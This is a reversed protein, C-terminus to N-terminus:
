FTDRVKIQIKDIKLSANAFVSLTLCATMFVTVFLPANSKFPNIVVHYNFTGMEAM